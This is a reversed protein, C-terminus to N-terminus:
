PPYLSLGEMEAKLLERFKHPELKNRIGKLAIGIGVREEGRALHYLEELLAVNLGWVRWVAYPFAHKEISLYREALPNTSRSLSEEGGHFVEGGSFYFADFGKRIAHLAIVSENYSGRLSYEPLQLGQYVERKISMNVGAIALTKENGIHERRDVSLGTKTLFGTYEKFKACYEEMYITHSLRQFLANPYNKWKRGVVRGTLVGIRQHEEHFRVHDEVWHESPIADDDTVLLLPSSAERLAINLAEEYYGDKQEIAKNYDKTRLEGKYILIVEADKYRKLRDLLSYLSPRCLTPIAISVNM